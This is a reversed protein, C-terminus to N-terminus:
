PDDEPSLPKVRITHERLLEAMGMFLKSLRLFDENTGTGESTKDILVGTAKRVVILAEHLDQIEDDLTRSENPNHEDTPM